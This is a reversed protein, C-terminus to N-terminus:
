REPLRGFDIASNGLLDRSLVAEEDHRLIFKKNILVAVRVKGNENDLDVSEVEGIRVGSRRVPTGIGVGAANELIVVYRYQQSFLSPFGSFLIVLLALIVLSALVFVGIRFKLTTDNM